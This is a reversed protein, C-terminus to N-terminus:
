IEPKLDGARLAGLTAIREGMEARSLVGARYLSRLFDEAAVDQKM